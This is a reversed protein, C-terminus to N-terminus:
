AVEVPFQTNETPAVTVGTSTGLDIGPSVPSRTNYNDLITLGDVRTTRLVVSGDGVQRLQGRNRRIRWNTGRDGDAPGSAAVGICTYSVNDEVVFNELSGKAGNAIWNLYAHGTECRRIAINHGRANAGAMELDVFARGVRWVSIDEITLDRVSWDTAFGHRGTHHIGPYVNVTPQWRDVGDGGAVITGGLGGHAGLREEGGPNVVNANVVKPGLTRGHIRVPGVGRPFCTVGDGLVYEVAINTLDIDTNHVDATGNPLGVIIGAQDELGANYLLGEPMAKNDGRYRVVRGAGQIRAHPLSSTITVDDAGVCVCWRHQPHGPQHDPWLSPFRTRNQEFHPDSDGLTPGTYLWCGNLDLTLPKNILIGQPIWYVGPAYGPGRRLQFVDGPKGAAALWYSLAGSVNQAGTNDIDPPPSLTAAGPAPWPRACGTAALAGYAATSLM